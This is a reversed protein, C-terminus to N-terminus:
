SFLPWIGQPCGRIPLFCDGESADVQKPHSCNLFAALQGSLLYSSWAFHMQGKGCVLPLFVFGLMRNSCELNESMDKKECCDDLCCSKFGVQELIFKVVVKFHVSLKEPHSEYSKRPFLLIDSQLKRRRINLLHWKRVLSISESYANTHWPLFLLYM